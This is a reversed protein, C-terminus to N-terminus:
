SQSTYCTVYFFCQRQFICQGITRAQMCYMRLSLWSRSPELSSTLVWCTLLLRTLFLSCPRLCCRLVELCGQDEGHSCVCHWWLSFPLRLDLIWSRARLNSLLLDWIAWDIGVSLTETETRELCYCGPHIRFSFSRDAPLAVRATLALSTRISYLLRSWPGRLHLISHM